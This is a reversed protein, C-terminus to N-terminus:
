AFFTGFFLKLGSDNSFAAKRSRSFPNEKFKVIIHQSQHTVAPLDWLPSEAYSEGLLVLLFVIGLLGTLPAAPRIRYLRSFM